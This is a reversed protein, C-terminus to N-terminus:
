QSNTSTPEILTQMLGLQAQWEIGVLMSVIIGIIFMIVIIVMIITIIIIILELQARM